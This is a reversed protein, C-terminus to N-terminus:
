GEVLVREGVRLTGPTGVAAYVGACPYRKSAVQHGNHATMARLVEPDHPLGGQALTTLTCRPDLLMMRLRVADGLAVKRGIWDNEPFGSESWDVMVNMRFRREDFRSGPSLEALRALTSNTMVSVPYLDVFGGQPEPTLVRVEEFFAADLTRAVFQGREGAPDHGAPDPEYRHLAFDKPARCLRVERHFFASLMSDIEPSDSTASQGDNLTIRVPPLASGARPPEVYEARCDLLGPFNVSKASAAKGAAVDVLAYARDGLLGQPTIEAAELREGRMSKLPFRWLAAISGLRENTAM